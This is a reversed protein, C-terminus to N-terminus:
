LNDVIKSQAALMEEKTLSKINKTDIFGGHGDNEFRPILWIHAHPVEEGSILSVVWDTEFAKKQALVIKRTVEFYEGVNQVDWVWREHRKPIVLTHGINLPRIDLFALFNDDEYVKYSPIEGKVINCFICDNM